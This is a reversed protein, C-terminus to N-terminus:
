VVFVLDVLFNRWSNAGLLFLKGQYKLWDSCRRLKVFTELKLPRTMIDALQDQTGCHILKVKGEWNARKLLSSSGWHTQQTWPSNSEKFNFPQATIVSSQSSSRIVRDSKVLYELWGFEKYQAHFLQEAETNSHWLRSNRQAGHSQEGM